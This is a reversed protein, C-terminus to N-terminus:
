AMISAATHGIQSACTRSSFGSNESIASLGSVAIAIAVNGATASM